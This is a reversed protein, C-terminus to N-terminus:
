AKLHISPRMELHVISGQTSRAPLVTTNYHDSFDLFTDNITPEYRDSKTVASRLNDPKIGKPVGGFYHLANEVSKIFDHKKQSMSAEAYTLQSGGLVAVFFQVQQIEGTEPDVIQMTKGAYDIFMMDGAKHEM